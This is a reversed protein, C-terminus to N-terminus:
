RRARRRADRRAPQLLAVLGPVGGREVHGALVERMRRLRAESFGSGGM